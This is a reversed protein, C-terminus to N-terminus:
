SVMSANGPDPAALWPNALRVSRDAMLGFENLLEEHPMGQTDVSVHM